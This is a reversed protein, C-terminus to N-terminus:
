PKAIPNLSAIRQKVANWVASGAPANSLCIAYYQRAPNTDHQQHRMIIGRWFVGSKKRLFDSPQRRDEATGFFFEHGNKDEPLPPPLTPNHTLSVLNKVTIIAV